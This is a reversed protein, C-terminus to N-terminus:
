LARCVAVPTGGPVQSIRRNGDALAPSPGPQGFIRSTGLPAVRKAAPSLRLAAQCRRRRDGEAQAKLNAQRGANEHASSVFALM